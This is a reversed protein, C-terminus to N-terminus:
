SREQTTILWLRSERNGKKCVYRSTRGHTCSMDNWFFQSKRYDYEIEHCRGDGSPQKGLHSAGVPIWLQQLERQTWLVPRLEETCNKTRHYVWSYSHVDISECVGMLSYPPNCPKRSVLGFWSSSILQFLRWMFRDFYMWETYSEFTVLQANYFGQCMEQAQCLSTLPPNGVRYCPGTSLNGTWDRPCQAYSSFNMELMLSIDLISSYAYTRKFPSTNTFPDTKNFLNLSQLFVLVKLLM